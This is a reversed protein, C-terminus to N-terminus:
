IYRRLIKMIQDKTHLGVLREEVKGDKFIIMTPITRVYYASATEKNKDIDLKGITVKDGIEEAIEELIPGQKRCPGCWTAWFDVLIVGKSISKDFTNDSLIVPKSATNSTIADVQYARGSRDIGQFIGISLSLLIFTLLLKSKTM